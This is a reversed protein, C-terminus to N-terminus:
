ICYEENIEFGIYKRKLREAVLATTGVLDITNPEIQKILDFCDGHIITNIM